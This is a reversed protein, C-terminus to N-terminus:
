WKVVGKIYGDRRATAIEFLEQADQPAAAHTILPKLDFFGKQMLKVTRRFVRSFDPALLPSTNYVELGKHHWEYLDVQRPGEGRHSGFINLRGALRVLQTSLDMTAQTGASEIVVDLPDRKLQELSERGEPTASNITQSAGFQKAIELHHADIDIAIVEQCLSHELGQVFLLGMFGTGVVAVRDGPVLKSWELSNVVTAVPEAVWNELDQADAPLRAIMSESVNALHGFLRSANGWVAVPDGEKVTTVQAGVKRVQGVGEHGHIFPYSHNKPVFGKFLALDYACVGTVEVQVQVQNPEPDGIEFEKLQVQRPGEFFMGVTKM